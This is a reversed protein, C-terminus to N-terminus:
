ILYVIKIKTHSPRPSLRRMDNHIGKGTCTMCMCHALEYSHLVEWPACACMRLHPLCHSYLVAAHQGCRLCPCGTSAHLGCDNYAVAHGCVPSSAIGAAGHGCVPSSAIGAAGHGCVLSSAIGAAGHGCVPSNAIGAAGHECVLSSAIGAAGHGCLASSRWSSCCLQLM